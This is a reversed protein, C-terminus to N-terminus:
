RMGENKINLNVKSNNKVKENHYNESAKLYDSFLKQVLAVSDPHLTQMYNFQDLKGRLISYRKNNDM